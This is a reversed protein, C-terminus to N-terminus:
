LEKALECQSICSGAKTQLLLPESTSSTAHVTRLLGYLRIPQLNM